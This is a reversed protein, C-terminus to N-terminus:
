ANKVAQLSQHLLAISHIGIKLWYDSRDAGSLSLILEMQKFNPLAIFVKSPWLTMSYSLPYESLKLTVLQFVTSFM